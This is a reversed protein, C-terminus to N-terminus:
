RQPRHEGRPPPLAVPWRLVSSIRGLQAVAKQHWDEGLQRKLQERTDSRLRIRLPADTTDNRVTVRVQCLPEADRLDYVVLMTDLVGRVWHRRRANPKRTLRPEGYNVVHAVGLFPRATLEALERKASAAEELSGLRRFERAALEDTPQVFRKRIPELEDPALPGTVSLPLLQRRDVRSDQVRLHLTASEGGERLEDDPCPQVDLSDPQPIERALRREAVALEFAVERSARALPSENGTATTHVPRAHSLPRDLERGLGLSLDDCGLTALCGTLLWPAFTCSIRGM